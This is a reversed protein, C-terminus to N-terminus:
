EPVLEITVVEQRAIVAPKFGALSLIPAYKRAGRVTVESDTCSIETKEVGNALLISEAQERCAIRAAEKIRPLDPKMKERTREKVREMFELPDIIEASADLEEQIEKEAEPKLKIYTEELKDQLERYYHTSGALGALHVSNEARSSAELMRGTEVVMALVVMSFMVFLLSVATIYGSENQPKCIRM